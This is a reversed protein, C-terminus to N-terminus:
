AWNLDRSSQGILDGFSRERLRPEPHADIVLARSVIEATQWARRVNSAVIRQAGCGNLLQAATEAQAFGRENLSIEAHQLIRLHNGDTEGHRVFIFGDVGVQLPRMGAAAQLVHLGHRKFRDDMTPSQNHTESM